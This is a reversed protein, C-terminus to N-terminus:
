NGKAIKAFIQALNPKEFEDLTGSRDGAFTQMDAKTKLVDYVRGEYSIQTYQFIGDFMYPLQMTLYKDPMIPQVCALGSASMFEQEKAIFYVNKGPIDRFDRFVDMVKENLKGYAQQGNKTKKKEDSLVFEGLDSISDFCFTEYKDAAPTRLWTYINGLETMDKPQVYPMAEKRLSLLGKETSIILPKPATACLRTKGIKPRGYVVVKIGNTHVDRTNLITPASMAQESGM